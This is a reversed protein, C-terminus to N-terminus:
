RPSSDGEGNISKEQPLVGILEALSALWPALGLSKNADAYFGWSFPTDPTEEFWGSTIAFAATLPDVEYRTSPLDSSAGDGTRNVVPVWVAGDPGLPISVTPPKTENAELIIKKDTFVEALKKRVAQRLERVAEPFPANEILEPHNQLLKSVWIGKFPEESNVLPIFLDSVTRSNSQIIDPLFVEKGFLDFFEKAIHGKADLAAEFIREILASQDANNGALRILYAAEDANVIKQGARGSSAADGPSAVKSAMMGKAIELLAEQYAPLPRNGAVSPVSSLLRILHRHVPKDLEAVWREKSISQLGARIWDPFRAHNEAGQLAMSSYLWALDANLTTTCVDDIFDSNEISRKVLKDLPSANFEGETLQSFLSWERAIIEPTFVYPANENETVIKLCEIVFSETEKNAKHIEFLNLLGNHEALFDIIYQTLDLDEQEFLHQRLNEKTIFALLLDYGDDSNGIAQPKILYPNKLLFISVCLVIKSPNPFRLSGDIASREINADYFHHLLEGDMVLSTLAQNATTDFLSLNCLCEILIEVEIAQVNQTVRLRELFRGIFEEFCSKDISLMALKQKIMNISNSWNFYDIDRYNGSNTKYTIGNFITNLVPKAFSEEPFFDCFATLGDAIETNLEGWDSLREARKRLSNKVSNALPKYSEDIPKNFLDVQQICYAVNALMENSYSRWETQAMGELAEWFGKDHHAQYCDELAKPIRTEFAQQIPNNLRIQKAEAVPTNFAIAALNDTADPAIFPEVDPTPLQGKLVMDVVQYNMRRLLVYYAMHSIPFEDQWQRHISGIQNVYLKLQRPTALKGTKNLYWAYLLYLSHFDEKNHEPFAKDLIDMLYSRWRSLVPPPVEFRLQFSKDLFSLAVANETPLSQANTAPTKADTTQPAANHKNVDDPKKEGKEKGWLQSLGEFDYPILVWVRKHWTDSGKARPHLFTQLTSLIKLAEAPAIRDLNDLVLVIKRAEKSKNGALAENMLDAFHSEFEVSTPNTTKNTRITEGTITKNVLLGWVSTRPKKSKSELICLEKENKKLRYYQKSGWLWIGRLGSWLGLLFAAAFVVVVPLIIIALSAFLLKTETPYPQTFGLKTLDKLAAGLLASGIPIFALLPIILYGLRGIKPDTSTEKVEKRQAIIERREDWDYKKVWNDGAEAGETLQEILNELFTRRLPDGEHAWADFLIVKYNPTKTLEDMLLTVITTKGSGWGGELGISKGGAEDSRILEAIAAAVKKHPSTTDHTSFNDQTAPNDPILRTQCPKPSSM